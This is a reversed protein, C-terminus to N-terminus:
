KGLMENPNLDKRLEEKINKRNRINGKLPPTTLLERRSKM